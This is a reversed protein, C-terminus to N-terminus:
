GGQPLKDGHAVLVLERDGSADIAGCSGYEEMAWAIDAADLKLLDEVTTAMLDVALLQGDLLLDFTV